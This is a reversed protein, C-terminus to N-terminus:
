RVTLEHIGDLGRFQSASPSRSRDAHDIAIGTTIARQISVAFANVADDSLSANNLQATMRVADLCPPRYISLFCRVKAFHRNSFSSQSASCRGGSKTKAFDSLGSPSCLLNTSWSSDRLRTM